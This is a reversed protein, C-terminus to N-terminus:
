GQPDDEADGEKEGPTREAQKVVLALPLEHEM